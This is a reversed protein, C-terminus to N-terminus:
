KLVTKPDIKPMLAGTKMKPKDQKIPQKEYDNTKSRRIYFLILILFLV